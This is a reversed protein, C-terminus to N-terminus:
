QSKKSSMNICLHILNIKRKVNSGGIIMTPYDNFKNHKNTAL